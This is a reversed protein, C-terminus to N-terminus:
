LTKIVDMRCNVNEFVSGAGSSKVLVPKCRDTPFYGAPLPETSRVFFYRYIWAEDRTWDFGRRATWAWDENGFRTPMRDHRYRVMEQLFGAFSFDVFRSKEAEYWMPFHQYATAHDTAESMSDFMIGLAREGPETAALVEEFGASERGFALLRETHMALAVWCLLPLLFGLVRRQINPEPARFILAYAPLLFVAFRQVLQWAPAFAWFFVTILLPVFATLDRRNLRAGLLFPAIALLLVLPGVQRYVSINGVPWGITLAAFNLQNINWGSNGVVGNAATGKSRRACDLPSMPCPQSCSACWRAANSSSFCDVSLAPLLWSWDTRSSSCWIPASCCSVQSSRRDRPTAVLFPYFGLAYAQGFFGPIFLWDLRPDGGLERRLAVCAAVFGFFALTLVLKVAPLASM